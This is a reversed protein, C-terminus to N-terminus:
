LAEMVRHESEESLISVEVNKIKKKRRKGKKSFENRGREGGGGLISVSTANRLSSVIDGEVLRTTSSERVNLVNGRQLLYSKSAIAHTRRWRKLVQLYLFFM